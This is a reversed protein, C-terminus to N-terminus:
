VSFRQPIDTGAMGFDPGLRNRLWAGALNLNPGQVTPNAPAGFPQNQGPTNRRGFEFAHARWKHSACERERYFVPIRRDPQNLASWRLELATDGKRQM